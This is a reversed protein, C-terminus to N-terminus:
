ISMNKKEITMVQSKEQTAFLEFAVYVLTLVLVLGILLFMNKRSELDGKPSKKIIM